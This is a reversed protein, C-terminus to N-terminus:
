YVNSLSLLGIGSRFIESSLEGLGVFLILLCTVVM